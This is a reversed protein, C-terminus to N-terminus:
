CSIETDVELPPIRIRNLYLFRVGGISLQATPFPCEVLGQTNETIIQGVM